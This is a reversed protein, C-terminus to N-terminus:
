KIPREKWSDSCLLEIEVKQICPTGYSCSLIFHDNQWYRCIQEISKLPVRQLNTERCLERNSPDACNM